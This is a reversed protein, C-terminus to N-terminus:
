VTMEEGATLYQKEFDCAISQLVENEHKSWIDLIKEGGLLCFDKILKENVKDLIVRLANLSLMALTHEQIQMGLM